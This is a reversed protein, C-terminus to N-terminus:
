RRGVPVGPFLGQSTRRVAVRTGVSGVGVKERALSKAELRAAALTMGLIADLIMVVSGRGLVHETLAQVMVVALCAQAGREPWYLQSRPFHSAFFSLEKWAYWWVLMTLFLGLIGGEALFHLYSNHAHFDDNVIRAHTSVWVIGQIGWSQAVVDNFRGYGVGIFPSDTFDGWAISWIRYRDTAHPDTTDLTSDLRQVLSSSLALVLAAPVAVLLAAKFITSLRRLPLILAAGVVFAIYAGRSYTILLGSLCCALLVWRFIKQNVSVKTEQLFLLALVCAIAYAGGATNHAHYWGFFINGVSSEDVIGLPKLLSSYPLNLSLATGAVALLSLVTLFVIWFTRYYKPKLPWGLFFVFATYSFLMAGDNRLFEFSVLNGLDGTSWFYSALWYVLCFVVAWEVKGFGVGKTLRASAGRLIVICIAGIPIIPQTNVLLGALLLVAVIADIPNL